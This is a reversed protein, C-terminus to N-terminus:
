ISDGAQEKLRYYESWTIEKVDSFPFKEYQPTDELKGKFSSPIPTLLIFIDEKDIM